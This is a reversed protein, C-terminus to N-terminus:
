SRKFSIYLQSTMLMFCMWPSRLSSMKLRRYTCPSLGFHFRTACRQVLTMIIYYYASHTHARTRTNPPPLLIRHWGHWYLVTDMLGFHTQLRNLLIGHDFASSPDLLDLVTEMQNDIATTIDYWQNCSPWRLAAFNVSLLNCKLMFITWPLIDM